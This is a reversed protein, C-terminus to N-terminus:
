LSYTIMFTIFLFYGQGKKKKLQIINYHSPDFWNVSFYISEKQDTPPM